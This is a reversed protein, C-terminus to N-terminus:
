SMNQLVFTAPTITPLIKIGHRNVVKVQFNPLSVFLRQHIEQVCLKIIEYAEPETLSPKHHRDLISMCILGGFGHVGFPVRLSSALFDLTYLQGGQDEDYGAVLMNVMSPTGSRLTDMLNKRIFHVAATTSLQYKNRIKYLQINKTIFQTFQGTDGMDGIIGMVQGNSINHLKNEDHKLVIISTTNTQDAAMISFDKCQMGLLCQFHLSSSTM